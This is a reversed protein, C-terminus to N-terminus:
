IKNGHEKEEIGLSKPDFKTNTLYEYHEVLKKYMVKNRIFCIKIIILLDYEYFWVGYKEDESILKFKNSM